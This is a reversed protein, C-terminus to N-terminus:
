FQGILKQQSELESIKQKLLFTVPRPMSTTKTLCSILYGILGPLLLISLSSLVLIFIALVLINPHSNLLTGDAVLWFSTPFLLFYLAAALIYRREKRLAAKYLTMKNGLNMTPLSSMLQEVRTREFGIKFLLLNRLAETVSKQEADYIEKQERRKNEEMATALPDQKILNTVEM